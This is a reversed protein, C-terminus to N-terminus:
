RSEPEEIFALFERGFDTIRPERTSKDSVNQNAGNVLDVTQLGRYFRKILLVQGALEPMGTWVFEWLSIGDRAVMPADIGARDLWGKPHTPLVAAKGGAADQEACIKAHSCETRLM